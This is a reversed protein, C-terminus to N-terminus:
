ESSPPDDDEENETRDTDANLFKVTKWFLFAVVSLFGMALALGFAVEGRKGPPVFKLPYYFLLLAGALLAFSCIFFKRSKAPKRGDKTGLGRLLRWYFWSVAAGAVFAVPTGWDLDFRVGAAVPTVSYVMAALSGFALSSAGTVIRFFDRDDGPPQDQKM